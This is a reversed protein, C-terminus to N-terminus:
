HQVIFRKSISAKNANVTYTYIGNALNETGLSVKYEGPMQQANTTQSVVNGVIDTVVVSVDSTVGLEYRVNTNNDTPNPYAELIRFGNAANEGFGDVDTGVTVLTWMAWNQAAYYGGTAASGYVVNSNKIVNTLFPPIRCYSSQITSQLAKDPDTPDIVYGASVSFTDLKSPDEYKLILGLKIPASAGLFNPYPAYSLIVGAGTGVWNGGPSLTVNSSDVQEWLVTATGNAAAPAGSANLQVIQMRIKDYNGSNNEHTVFAFISDVRIGIDTPYSSTFGFLSSDCITGTPDAPDTFGAIRNLSLGVFNLTSDISTYSSSFQHIFSDDDYNAVSHDMYFSQARNVPGTQHQKLNMLEERSIRYRDSPKQLGQAKVGAAFAISIALFYIKKM